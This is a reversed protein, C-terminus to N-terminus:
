IALSYGSQISETTFLNRMRKPYSFDRTRKGAVTKINSHKDQEQYEDCFILENQLTLKNLTSLM